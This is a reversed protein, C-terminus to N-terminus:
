PKPPIPMESADTYLDGYNIITTETNVIMVGKVVYYYIVMAVLVAVALVVAGVLIARCRHQKKEWAEATGQPLTAMYEAATDAPTGLLEEVESFTLNPQDTLTDNMQERLYARLKERQPKDCALHKEVKRFYTNLETEYM